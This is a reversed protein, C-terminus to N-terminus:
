LFTSSEEVWRLHEKSIGAPFLKVMEQKHSIESGLEAIIVVM